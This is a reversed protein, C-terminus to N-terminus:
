WPCAMRQCSIRATMAVASRRDACATTGGFRKLPWQRRRNPASFQRRLANASRHVVPGVTRVPAVAVCGCCEPIYFPDGVYM